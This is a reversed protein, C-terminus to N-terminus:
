IRGGGGNKFEPDVPIPKGAGDVFNLQYHISCPDGSNANTITLKDGSCQVVGTQGSQVGNAPCGGSTTEHSWFPDADDFRLKRETKDKLKFQVTHPGTGQKFEIVSKHPKKGDIDWEIGSSGETATVKVDM